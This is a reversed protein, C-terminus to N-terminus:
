QGSACTPPPNEGDLAGSLIAIGMVLHIFFMCSFLDTLGDVIHHFIALLDLHQQHSSM